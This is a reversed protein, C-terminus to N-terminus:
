YLFSFPMLVPLKTKVDMCLNGKLLHLNDPCKGKPLSVYCHFIGMNWIFHMKLPDMNKNVLIGVTRIEDKSSVSIYSCSHYFFLTFLMRESLHISPLNNNSEKM